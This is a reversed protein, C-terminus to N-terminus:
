AKPTLVTDIVHAVGNSQLVDATIITSTFGSADILQTSSATKRVTLEQGQVTKLKQGDKLDAALFKGSVAHYTLIKTLTAKNEPKVLTEVTGAPLKAFAANDPGFVTFPGPGQLTAVLDAAKVAAVLTTLNPANVVNSIIDKNAFMAAGGVKTEAAPILVTDIVHAVGNSQLVDATTVNSTNGSNDMIMVSNGSKKITLEQGQVTKLKQGDKLDTSLLKGAVVHYTLINTLTAKNEPKVLTEVTGAPLKAFAANDPGFVTFPGPGQLTAVLDAAKVAAVLTTLNPANVVNSIIDKNAFMAAGGVSVTKEDKTMSTDSSMKNDKNDDKKMTGFYIATGAIAVVAIVGLAIVISNNKSNNNDSSM